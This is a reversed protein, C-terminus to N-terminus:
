IFSIGNLALDHQLELDKSTYFSTKEHSINEFWMTENKYFSLDEPYIGNGTKSISNISSIIKMTYYNCQYFEKEYDPWLKDDKYDIHWNSLENRYFNCLSNSYCESNIFYKFSFSDSYEFAIKLFIKWKKDPIIIYKNM